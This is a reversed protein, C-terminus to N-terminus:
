YNQDQMKDFLKALSTSIYCVFFGIQIPFTSQDDQITRSPYDPGAGMQAWTWDIDANSVLHMAHKGATPKRERSRSYSRPYWDWGMARFNVASYFEPWGGV